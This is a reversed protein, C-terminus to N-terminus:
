GPRPMNSGCSVGGETADGKLRKGLRERMEKAAKNTFTTAAIRKAPM